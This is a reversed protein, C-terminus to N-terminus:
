RQVIKQRIVDSLMDLGADSAFQSITITEVPFNNPIMKLLMSPFRGGVYLNIIKINKPIPRIQLQEMFRRVESSEHFENASAGMTLTKVIGKANWPVFRIFTSLDYYPMSGVTWRRVKAFDEPTHNYFLTNPIGNMELDKPLRGGIYKDNGITVMRQQRNKQMYDVVRYAKPTLFVAQSSEAGHILSYGPDNFGVYGMKRLVESWKLTDVPTYADFEDVGAVLAKTMGWMYGAPSDHFNQNTKATRRLRAIRKDSLGYLSQLKQIDTELDHETYDGPFNHDIDSELVFLHNGGHYPLFELGRANKGSYNGTNWREIDGEWIDMLRYAYIGAPSDHSSSSKPYIGVKLIPAMHLYMKPNDKYKRLFEVPTERPNHEPNRRREALIEQLLM